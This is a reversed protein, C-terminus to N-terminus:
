EEEQLTEVAQDVLDKVKTQQSQDIQEFLHNAHAEFDKVQTKPEPVIWGKLLYFRCQIKNSSDRFLSETLFGIKELRKCIRLTKAKSLELDSAIDEPAFGQAGNKAQEVIYEIVSFENSLIFKDEYMELLPAVLLTLDVRMEEAAQFLVSGETPEYLSITTLKNM